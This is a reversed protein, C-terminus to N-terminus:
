QEAPDYDADVDASANEYCDECIFENTEEIHLYFSHNSKLSM